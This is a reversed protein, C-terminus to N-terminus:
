PVLLPFQLSQRASSNLAPAILAPITVKLHPAWPVEYPAFVMVEKKDKGRMELQTSGEPWICIAVLPCQIKNIYSVCRM